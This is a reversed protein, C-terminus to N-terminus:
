NVEAEGDLVSPFPLLVPLRSPLLALFCPFPLPGALLLSRFQPGLAFALYNPPAFDWLYLYPSPMIGLPPVAGVSFSVVELTRWRHLLMRTKAHTHKYTRACTHTHTRTRTLILPNPPIWNRSGLTGFSPACPNDDLTSLVVGSALCGVPRVIPADSCRLSPPHAAQVIPHIAGACLRRPQSVAAPSAV